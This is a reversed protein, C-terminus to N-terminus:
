IFSLDTHSQQHRIFAKKMASLREESPSSLVVVEWYYVIEEDGLEDDNGCESIGCIVPTHEIIEIEVGFDEAISMYYSISQSGTPKEAAALAALRDERSGTASLKYDKEWEPLLEKTTTTDAEEMLKDVHIHVDALLEAVIRIKKDTVSNQKIEWIKGRPRSAILANHYNNKLEM